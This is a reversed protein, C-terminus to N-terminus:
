TLGRFVLIVDCRSGCALSPGRNQYPALAAGQGSTEGAPHDCLNRNCIPAVVIWYNTMAQRAVSTYAVGFLALGLMTFYPWDRILFGRLSFHSAKASDDDSNM